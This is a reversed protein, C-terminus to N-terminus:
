TMERFKTVNQLGQVEFENLKSHNLQTKLPRDILNSNM